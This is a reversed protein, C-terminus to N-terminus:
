WRASGVALERCQQGGVTVRVKSDLADAFPDRVTVEVQVHVVDVPAGSAGLVQARRHNTSALADDRHARGGSQVKAHHGVVAFVLSRHGCEPGVPMAAQEVLHGDVDCGLGELTFALEPGLERAPRQVLRATRLERVQRTWRAHGKSQQELAELVRGLLSRAGMQVKRAVVDRALDSSM